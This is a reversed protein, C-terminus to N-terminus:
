KGAKANVRNAASMLSSLYPSVEPELDVRVWPERERCRPCNTGVYERGCVTCRTMTTSIPNQM